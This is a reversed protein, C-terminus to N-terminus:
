TWAAEPNKILYGFTCWNSKVHSVHMELERKRTVVNATGSGKPCLGLKRSQGLRWWRKQRRGEAAEYM